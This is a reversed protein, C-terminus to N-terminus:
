WRMEYGDDTKVILGTERARQVAFYVAMYLAQQKGRSRPRRERLDKKPYFGTALTVQGTSQRAREVAQEYDFIEDM